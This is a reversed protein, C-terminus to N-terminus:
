KIPLRGKVFNWATPNLVYGAPTGTEPPLTPVAPLFYGQVVKGGIENFTTQTTAGSIDYGGFAPDLDEDSLGPLTLVLINAGNVTRLHWSGTTRITDTIACPVSTKGDTEYATVTGAGQSASGTFVLASKTERGVCVPDSTTARELLDAISSPFITSSLQYPSPPDSTDYQDNKPESDFTYALKSGPPFAVDSIRPLDEQQFKLYDGLYSTVLKGSVDIERYRAWSARGDSRDRLTLTAGNDDLRIATANEALVWGQKTLRYDVLPPEVGDEDADITSFATYGDSEPKGQQLTAYRYAGGAEIFYVTESGLLLPTTAVPVPAVPGTGAQSSDSDGGCAALLLTCAFPIMQTRLKMRQGRISNLLCWAIRRGGLSSYFTASIHQLGPLSAQQAAARRRAM